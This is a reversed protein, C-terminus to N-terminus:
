WDSAKLCIQRRGIQRPLFQVDGTKAVNMGVTKTSTSITVNEESIPM